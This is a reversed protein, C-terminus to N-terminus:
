KENNIHKELDELIQEDKIDWNSLYVIKDNEFLIHQSLGRHFDKFDPGIVDKLFTDYKKRRGKAYSESIIFSPSVFSFRKELFYKHYFLRKSDDKEIGVILLNVKSENKKIFEQLKPFYEQCPSCWFAYSVLLTYKKNSNDIINYLEKKDLSYITSDKLQNYNLSDSTSLKLAKYTQANLNLSLVIFLYIIYKM